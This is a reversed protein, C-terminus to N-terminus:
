LSIKRNADARCSFGQFLYRMIFSIEGSRGGPVEQRKKTYVPDPHAPKAQYQLEKMHYLM